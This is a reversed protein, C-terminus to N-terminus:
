RNCSGDQQTGKSGARPGTETESMVGRRTLVGGTRAAVEVLIGPDERQFFTAQRGKRGRGLPLWLGPPKGHTQTGRNSPACEQNHAKKELWPIWMNANDVTLNRQCIRRDLDYIITGWELSM